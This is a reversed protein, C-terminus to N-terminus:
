KSTSTYIIYASVTERTPYIILTKKYWSNVLQSELHSDAESVNSHRRLAFTVARWAALVSIFTLPNKPVATMTGITSPVNM